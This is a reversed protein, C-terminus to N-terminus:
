WGSPETCSARGLRGLSINSQSWVLAQSKREEDHIVPPRHCPGSSGASCNLQEWGVATRQVSRQAAIFSAPM